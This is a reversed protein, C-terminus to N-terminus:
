ITGFCFSAGFVSQVQRWSLIKAAVQLGEGVRFSHEAPSQGESLEDYDAVFGGSVM